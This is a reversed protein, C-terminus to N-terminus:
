SPFALAVNFPVAESEPITPESDTVSLPVGEPVNTDVLTPLEM